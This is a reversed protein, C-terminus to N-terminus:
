MGRRAQKLVTKQARVSKRVAEVKKNLHPPAAREQAKVGGEKKVTKDSSKILISAAKFRDRISLESRAYIM